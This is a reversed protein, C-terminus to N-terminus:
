LRCDEFNVEPHSVKYASLSKQSLLEVPSEADLVQCKM